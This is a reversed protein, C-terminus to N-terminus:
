YFDTSFFRLFSLAFVNIIGFPVSKQDGAVQKVKVQYIRQLFGDKEVCLDRESEGEVRCWDQPWGAFRM